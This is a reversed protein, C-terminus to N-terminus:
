KLGVEEIKVGLGKARLRFLLKWKIEWEGLIVRFYGSHIRFGVGLELGEDRCGLCQVRVRM